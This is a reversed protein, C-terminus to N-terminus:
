GADPPKERPDKRVLRYQGAFNGDDVTVVLAEGAFAFNLVLPIPSGEYDQKDKVLKGHAPTGHVTYTGGKAVVPNDSGKIWEQNIKIDGTRSSSITLTVTAPSGPETAWTGLLTPAPAAPRAPEGPPRAPGPAAVKTLDVMAPARAPAAPPVSKKLHYTGLHWSGEFSLILEEGKLEYNITRPAAPLKDLKEDAALTGTNGTTVTLYRVKIEPSGDQWRQAVITWKGLIGFSFAAPEAEGPVSTWYGALREDAAARLPLLLALGLALAFLRRDSPRHM